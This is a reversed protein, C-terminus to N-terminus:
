FTYRVGLLLVFADYDFEGGQVYYFGTDLLGDPQYAFECEGAQMPDSCNPPTPDMPDSPVLRGGDILGGREVRVPGFEGREGLDDIGPNTDFAEQGRGIRM